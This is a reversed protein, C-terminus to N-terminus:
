FINELSMGSVEIWDNQKDILLESEELIKLVTFVQKVEEMAKEKNGKHWLIEALYYRCSLVTIIDNIQNAAEKSKKLNIEMKDIETTTNRLCIAYNYHINIYLEKSTNFNKYKNIYVLLREFIHQITLDDFAYLINTILLLDNYFWADKKELRNWVPKVIERSRKFNQEQQFTNLAKLVYSVDMLFDNKENKILSNIKEILANIAHSNTSTKIAKFDQIVQQISDLQYNNHIYEFEALSMTFKQLISTVIGWSPMQQNKEIQYLHARSMITEYVDREKLNCNIRIEKLTHGLSKNERMM